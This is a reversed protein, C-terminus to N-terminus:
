SAEAEPLLRVNGDRFVYRQFNIPDFTYLQMMDQVFDACAQEVSQSRPIHRRLRASARRIRKASAQRLGMARLVAAQREWYASRLELRTM